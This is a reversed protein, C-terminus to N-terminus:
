NGLSNCDYYPIRGDLWHAKESMKFALRANLPAFSIHSSSVSGADMLYTRDDSRDATQSSRDHHRLELVNPVLNGFLHVFEFSRM